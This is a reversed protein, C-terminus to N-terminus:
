SKLDPDAAVFRNPYDIINPTECMNQMFPLQLVRLKRGVLTESFGFILTSM